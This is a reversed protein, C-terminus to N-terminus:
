KLRPILKLPLGGHDGFHLPRWIELARLYWPLPEAKLLAGTQADVLVPTFLRRHLISTGHMWVLNHHPTGYRTGFLGM